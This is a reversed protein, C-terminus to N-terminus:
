ADTDLAKLEDHHIILIENYIEKSVLTNVGNERLAIGDDKFVALYESLDLDYGPENDFILNKHMSGNILLNYFNLVSPNHIQMSIDPFVPDCKTVPFALQVISDSTSTFLTFFVVSFLSPIGQFLDSMLITTQGLINSSSIYAEINSIVSDIELTSEFNCYRTFFIKKFGPTTKSVTKVTLEFNQITNSYESLLTIPSKDSINGTPLNLNKEFTTSDITISSKEVNQCDLGFIKKRVFCYFYPLAGAILTLGLVHLAPTPVGPEELASCVIFRQDHILNIINIRNNMM